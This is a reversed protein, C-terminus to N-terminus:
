YINHDYSVERELPWSFFRWFKFKGGTKVFLLLASILGIVVNISLGKVEMLTLIPPLIWFKVNKREVVQFWSHHKGKLCSILLLLIPGPHSQTMLHSQPPTPLLLGHCYIMFKNIASFLWFCAAKTWCIPHLPYKNLLACPKEFNSSHM